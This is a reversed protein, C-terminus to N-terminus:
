KLYQQIKTIDEDLQKKLGEFSANFDKKTQDIKATVNSVQKKMNELKSAGNKLEEQLKQIQKQKAALDKQLREIEANRQVVKEQSQQKLASQFKDEEKQLINIYFKASDILKTQTVGMTQATMFATKFSTAEDMNMKAMNQLAQKFELYDFGDLNNAEIAKLLTETFKANVKGPGTSVTEIPAEPQPTEKVVEETKGKKPEEKAKPTEEEKATGEEEVIFLSKLNKLLAM